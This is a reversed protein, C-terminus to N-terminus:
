GWKKLYAEKIQRNILGVPWEGRVVRIIEEAPRAALGPASSSFAHASHATVIFNDLKLLPSGAPLPEPETVDVAAGAILGETLATYLADPDVIPGRATNVLYATPKMKRLQNLGILHTTAASFPTHISVIDSQELLEDLSVPEVGCSKLEERSLFPDHVIIRLGFGKTKPLLAYPIRGFGILGLTRGRLKWMKPWVQGGIEPDPQAKWGKEKVWNSLEVVRRTCALILAMTHDSVEELCFDPVNAAMICCDNAADIDLKDYGIGVSIIFKCNPLSSLVKRSFPQYTAQAIVADGDGVARIIDDEGADLSCFNRALEVEVGAERFMGEYDTVVSFGLVDVAKFPM